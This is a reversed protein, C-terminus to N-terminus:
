EHDIEAVDDWTLKIRLHPNFCRYLDVVQLFQAEYGALPYSAKQPWRVTIRTGNKISSPERVPTIRSEQRIADVAFKIHHAIGQSEIVVTEDIRNDLVFPMAIITKLANGQQGRTPSIYAQRSSTRKSYDLISDVTTSPIGQGNDTFVLTGAHTDVSVTIEPDIGAEEASDIGNDVIEKLIALLWESVPHGTQTVLEKESCFELLRSTAFTERTIQHGTGSRPRRAKSPTDIIIPIDAITIVDPEDAEILVRQRHRPPAVTVDDDDGWDILVRDAM